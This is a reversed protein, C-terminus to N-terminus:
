EIDEKLSSYDFTIRMGDDTEITAEVFVIRDCHQTLFDILPDLMFEKEEKKKAM